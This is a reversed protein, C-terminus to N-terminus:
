EFAKTIGRRPRDGRTRPLGDQALKASEALPGIGAHAPCGFGASASSKKM